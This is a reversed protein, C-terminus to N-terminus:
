LVVEHIISGDIPKTQNTLLLDVSISPSHLYKISHANNFTCTGSDKISWVIQQCLCKFVTCNNFIDPDQLIVTEFSM